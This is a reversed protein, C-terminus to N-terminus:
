SFFFKLGDFNFLHHMENTVSCVSANQDNENWDVNQYLVKM